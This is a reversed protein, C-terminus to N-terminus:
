TLTILNFEAVANIKFIQPKQKLGLLYSTNGFVQKKKTYMFNLLVKGTYSYNQKYRYYSYLESFRSCSISSNARSFHKEAPKINRGNRVPTVAKWRHWFLVEACMKDWNLPFLCCFVNVSHSRWFSSSTERGVRKLSHKETVLISKLHGLRGALFSESIVKSTGATASGEEPSAKNGM